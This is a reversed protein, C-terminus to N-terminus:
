VCFGCVIIIVFVDRALMILRVHCVCSVHCHSCYVGSRVIIVGVCTIVRVRIVVRFVSRTVRVVSRQVIILRFIFCMILFMCMTVCMIIRLLVCNRISIVCSVYHM